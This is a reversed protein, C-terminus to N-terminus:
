EWISGLFERVTLKDYTIMALTGATSISRGSKPTKGTATSIIVPAALGIYFAGWPTTAPILLTLLGGLLSFLLSFLWYTWPVKCYHKLRIKYLRVIEPAIAGIFGLIFYELNFTFLM